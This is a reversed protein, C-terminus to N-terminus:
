EKDRKEDKEDINGKRSNIYNILIYNIESNLSRCNRESLDILKNRLDYSIRLTLRVDFIKRIKNSMNEM